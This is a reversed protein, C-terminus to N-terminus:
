LSPPSWQGDGDADVRIDNTLAYPPGNENVPQLSGSGLVEIDRTEGDVTIWGSGEGRFQGGRATSTNGSYQRAGVTIKRDM